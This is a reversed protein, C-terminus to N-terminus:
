SRKCNASHVVYIYACETAPGAEWECCTWSASQKPLFCVQLIPRMQEGLCWGRGVCVCAAGGGLGVRPQERQGGVGRRTLANPTGCETGFGRSRCGALRGRVGDRALSGAKVREGVYARARAAHVLRLYTCLRLGGNRWCPYTPLRRWAGAELYRYM